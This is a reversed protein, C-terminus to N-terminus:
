NDKLAEFLVGIGQGVIQAYHCFFAQHAPRV